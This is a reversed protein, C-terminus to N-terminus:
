RSSLKPPHTHRWRQYEQHLLEFNEYMRPDVEARWGPLVPQIKGWVAEIGGILDFYLDENLLGRTILVGALEYMGCVLTFKKRGESGRPYKHKFEEYDRASFESLIWGMADLMRESSHMEWLKLLIDVDRQTPEVM